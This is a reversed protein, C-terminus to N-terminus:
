LLENMNSFTLSVSRSSKQELESVSDPVSVSDSVSDSIETEESDDPDGFGLCLNLLYIRNIQNYHDITDTKKFDTNTFYYEIGSSSTKIPEIIAKIDHIFINLQSNTLSKTDITQLHEIFLKRKIIYQEFIASEHRLISSLIDM